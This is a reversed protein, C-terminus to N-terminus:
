LFAWDRPFIKGMGKSRLMEVGTLAHCPIKLM